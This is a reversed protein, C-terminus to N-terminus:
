RGQHGVARSSGVHHQMGREARRFGSRLAGEEESSEESSSGGTGTETGTPPRGAPGGPCSIKEERCEQGHPVKLSENFFASAMCQAAAMDCACLLKECTSWGVGPLSTECNMNSLQEICLLTTIQCMMNESTSPERTFISTNGSSDSVKFSLMKGGKGAPGRESLGLDLAIGSSATSLGGKAPSTERAKSTALVTDPPEFSVLEAYLRKLYRCKPMHRKVRLQLGLGEEVSATVAWTEDTGQHVLEEMHQRTLERKSTTETVPSPCSSVDLGSLSSNIQANVFCEIADKDCTCLFQDCPDVFECTLNKTSCSVDASIKSPDWTCEMELAEEYCKRHQFCCEDVEDVPLGEMEFRCSCGYDEFDRPCFGTVCKMRNVFNLLAPFNTFISQLWTFHSGLCDPFLVAMFCSTFPPSAPTPSVRAINAHACLGSLATVVPVFFLAVSEVNQFVGNFLTTNDLHFFLCVTSVTYVVMSMSMLLIVIM